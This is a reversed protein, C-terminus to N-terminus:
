LPNCSANNLLLTAYVVHRNSGQFSAGIRFLKRMESIPLLLIFFKDLHSIYHLTVNSFPIAIHSYKIVNQTIGTRSYFTFGRGNLCSL